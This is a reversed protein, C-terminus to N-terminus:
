LKNGRLFDDIAVPQKGPVQITKLTLIGTSCAVEKSNLITGPPYNHEIEQYNADLIKIKKSNIVSDIGQLAKIKRVIELASSNWDLTEKPIKSAYTIGNNNQPTATVNEINNMVKILMEAGIQSLKDHLTLYNDSDDINIKQIALIDGADLEETMNMICVGTEKDGALITHQIPAAGRWRPLLSPHINICGYKTSELIHKPLLLGYAAVVIIDANHTITHDKLTKPTLVPIKNDDAIIHVPTKNIKKGRGKKKPERTYVCVLKHDQAEIIKKLATVAFCPSGMFIVKM